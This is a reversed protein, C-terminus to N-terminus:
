VAAVVSLVKAAVTAATGAINLVDQVRSINKDVSAIKDAAAELDKTEASLDVVALKLRYAVLSNITQDLDTRLAYVRKMQLKDADSTPHAEIIWDLLSSELQMLTDILAM